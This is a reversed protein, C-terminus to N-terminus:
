GALAHLCTAETADTVLARHEHVAGGREVVDALVDRVGRDLLRESSADVVEVGDVRVFGTSPRVYGAVSNLLTSKGCGSPGLLCVFSGPAVDVCTNQLAHNTVGDRQFVVSVDWIEIHGSGQAAPALSDAAVDRRVPTELALMM